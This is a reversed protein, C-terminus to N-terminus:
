DLRGIATFVYHLPLRGRRDVAMLDAGHELLLQEMVASSNAGGHNSSVALHLPTRHRCDRANVASKNGASLLREAVAVSQSSDTYM